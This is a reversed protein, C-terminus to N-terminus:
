LQPLLEGAERPRRTLLPLGRSVFREDRGRVRPRRGTMPGATLTCRRPKGYGHRLGKSAQVAARRASTPRGWLATGEEEFLAQIFRQSQERVLAELREWIPSSASPQSTTQQAM